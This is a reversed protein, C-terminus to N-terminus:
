VGNQLHQSGRECTVTPGPVEEDSRIRVDPSFYWSARLLAPTLDVVVYGRHVGDLCKLHPLAVRIAAAASSGNASTFM